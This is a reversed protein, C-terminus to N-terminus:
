GSKESKRDSCFKDKNKIYFNYFSKYFFDQLKYKEISIMKVNTFYENHRKYKDFFLLISYLMYLIIALLIYTKSIM